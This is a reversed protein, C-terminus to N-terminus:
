DFMQIRKSFLLFSANQRQKRWVSHNNHNKHIITWAQLFIGNMSLKSKYNQCKHKPPLTQLPCWLSSMTKQNIRGIGIEFLIVLQRIWGWPLKQRLILHTIISTRLTLAAFLNVKRQWLTWLESRQASIHFHHSPNNTFTNVIIQRQIIATSSRKLQKMPQHQPKESTEIGM